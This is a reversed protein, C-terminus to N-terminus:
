GEDSAPDSHRAARAAQLIRDLVKMNALGDEAPYPLPRGQLAASSFAHIMHVYQNGRFAETYIHDGRRVILPAPDPPLFGGPAELVGETGVLELHCRYPAEFSCDIQAITPAEPFWLEATLTMDVGTKWWHALAELRQPESCAFFRAANVGYCGIDWLAGGGRTPDLRWDDPQITFSFSARVLRLSGIAGEALLEAMRLSRPHHRWMFAEQLLVAKARCAEVMQLAEDQNRALPKDCLVHKRAEAARISWPAHLENPLAIYVAQVRDDQFAEEYSGYAAPVGFERAWSLAKHRDRSAIGQLRACEAQQVARLIARRAIRGCGLIAWGLQESM